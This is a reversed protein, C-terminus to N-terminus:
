AEADAEGEEQKMLYVTDLKLANAVKVIDEKTLALYKQVRGEVDSNDKTFFREYCESICSSPTDGIGHLAGVMATKANELLEDPFEGKKMLELQELIAERTKQANALEVGSDVILTNKGYLTRSACYYCLSMKERVNAFLMSVPLGGFMASFMKFAYTEIEEAKFAMVLKSQVVDMPEIIESVEKKLPSPCDFLLPEPKRDPIQTFANKLQEVTATVDKEPTVLYIQVVARKLMEQYAEYVSEPTLQLANEQTGYSPYADPEGEFATRRARILAYTRKQNIEAQIADLLEKQEIKFESEVFAGDKVNPDFICDLVLETLEGLLDEGNLAYRNAITGGSISLQMVRGNLSMSSGLNASYMNDLKITMSANDPYKRNSETLLSIALSYASNKEPIVPVLLMVRITNTKFKPEFITHLEMGEGLTITTEKLNM